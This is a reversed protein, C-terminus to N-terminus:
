KAAATPSEIPGLYSSRVGPAKATGTDIVIRQVVVGPTIAWVKLTHRGARGLQLTSTVRRVGEAVATGWPEWANPNTAIKVAQPPEDDLSVAFRLPSEPQFDLSPAVSFEVKAAGASFTYLDYELRPSEGGPVLDAALVPAITVGGLARGHDPLVHWTTGKGGIARTFHPAEMAVHGDLEVFGAFSGPRLEAPNVIPVAVTFAEGGTTTLTVKASTAGVPVAAWDASITLRTTEKVEGAAPSVKLWPQDATATFTYATDGRNFLEVWRSPQAYVDIPPVTPAPAGWVPWGTDRGEVALAAIAGKNVRLESIAPMVEAPPQQWYTYGFKVQDMQHNWKGGNLAHFREVLAADAAFLRRVRAAEANTNTRGQVAYLKNLGAAVYLEQLNACAQIPYLVLQFFAARAAAPLAAEMKEARAVLDAWEALVRESERYNVLSLTDPTIMEPKRRSNLKTYGNVLAAVETAHAPGFERAAWQASYEGIREYPWKAPDWALSLFYEIPFEMPKLDGVNVIWIRTADHQWALNMQEWIKTIPVTNLWKYNRPGGVYDFHYYVGAGGARQREAATPLRRINGWNDDCWLLTVDDPVRMGREYYDQVEKYLAWVQPVKTVDPNVEKALIARQDAVIKELLAVNSEESMPEDGDGRMALTIISEFDRNRRVGDAWFDSLVKANKSYDWHGSGHRAWEQQARLMPEHHSTSMVIGYEDALRPSAPDDENFANNWMAPWLFNGRLRLILEFVHAYLKSNIGGFKERSWNALAPAEDNLFIGRYKVTPGDEVLRVPKVSVTDRHTTPVDAWWYWPSVGIQESLEYVGYITGRKDSGAIVLAREIGPLPQDITEIQYAEWRGAIGALDLKGAKALGDILASKGVTGVIVAFRVGKPAAPNVVPKVAGVREVDAQLDAVARQVGPWDAVDVLVPAAVGGAILASATPAQEFAVFREQGLAWALTPLVLVASLLLARGSRGPRRLSLSDPSSNM